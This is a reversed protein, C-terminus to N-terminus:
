NTAPAPPLRFDNGHSDNERTTASLDLDALAIKHRMGDSFDYLTQGVIAYNEVELQHGDKFVLITEAQTGAPDAPESSNGAAPQTDFANRQYPAPPITNGPGRADFVTPGGNYQDGAYDASGDGQAYGSDYPYYPVAWVGGYTSRHHTHTSATKSSASSAGAAYGHRGLSTVSPPTGNIARGGFGTSTVSTPAGHVQARAFPVLCIALVAAVFVAVSARKVRNDYGLETTM